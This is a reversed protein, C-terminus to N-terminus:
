LGLRYPFSINEEKDISGNLLMIHTLLGPYLVTM